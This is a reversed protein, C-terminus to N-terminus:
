ETLSGQDKLALFRYVSPTLTVLGRYILSKDQKGDQVILATLFPATDQQFPGSYYSLVKGLAQLLTLIRPVSIVGVYVGLDEAEPAKKTGDEVARHCMEPEWMDMAPTKAITM